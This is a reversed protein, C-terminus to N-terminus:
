SIVEGIDFSRTQVLPGDTINVESDIMVMRLVYTISLPLTRLRDWITLYDNLALPDCIVDVSETDMFVNGTAAAYDNLYVSNLTGIDEFMRMVWGLMRHQRETDEAWPTIMYHLDLPLSPKFRRGDPMRRYNTNRVSGNIAVRYLYISFGEEMPSEFNRTQYLQVHLATGFDDRPYNDKILGALAASIAGIANFNAM